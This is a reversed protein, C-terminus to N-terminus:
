GRLRSNRYGYGFYIAFGIVLWVVLRIWTDLPLSIMLWVCTVIGAVAVPGGFPVRFARPLQAHTRRLVLVGGCVIAFAMLTGMSVLEGLVDIPFFGAILAAIIGTYWTGHTPVRTRPNVRAFIRPIMGDQAMSYFVRTQGYLTTLIASGLGAIAGVSIVPKLWALASGAQDVAVYVPHPVGLSTYPALGTVVLSMGVYLVTCIVLTLLLALPVTRRPNRSEQASTSVADFGVYAFFVVGAARVVGSWGYQGSEGANEPIFPQWNGVDVYWAGFAIVLLIVALKALVMLNNFFASQNIGLSLV